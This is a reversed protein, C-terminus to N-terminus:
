TDHYQLKLQSKSLEQLLPRKGVKEMSLWYDSLLKSKPLTSKGSKREKNYISRQLTKHLFSSFPVPSCKQLAEGINTSEFKQSITDRWEENKGRKEWNNVYVLLITKKGGM